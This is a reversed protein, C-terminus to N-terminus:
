SELNELRTQLAQEGVGLETILKPLRHASLSTAPAENAENTLARLHAIRDKLYGAQYLDPVLSVAAMEATARGFDTFIGRRFSLHEAIVHAARVRKRVAEKDIHETDPRETVGYVHPLNQNLFGQPDINVFPIVIKEITHQRPPIVFYRVNETDIRHEMCEELIFGPLDELMGSMKLRRTSEQLMRPQQSWIM